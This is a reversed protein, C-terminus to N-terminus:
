RFGVLNRPKESLDKVFLYVPGREFEVGLSLSLSAPNGENSCSYGSGGSEEDFLNSIDFADGKGPLSLTGDAFAITPFNAHSYICDL